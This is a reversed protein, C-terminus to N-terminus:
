LRFDYQLSLHKVCNTKFDMRSIFAFTCQDRKCFLIFFLLFTCNPSAGNVKTEVPQLTYVAYWQGNM